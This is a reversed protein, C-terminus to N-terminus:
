SQRVDDAPCRREHHVGDVISRLVQEAQQQQAKAEKLTGLPQRLDALERILQQQTKRAGKNVSM